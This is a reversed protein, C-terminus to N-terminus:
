VRGDTSKGSGDGNPNSADQGQIDAQVVLNTPASLDGFLNDEEQCGSVLFLLLTIVINNIFTKM